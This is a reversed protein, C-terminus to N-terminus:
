MITCAPTQSKSKPNFLHPMRDLNFARSLQILLQAKLPLTAEETKDIHYSQLFLQPESGELVNLIDAPKISGSREKALVSLTM